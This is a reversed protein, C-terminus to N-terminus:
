LCHLQHFAAVAYVQSGETKGKVSLPLGHWNPDEIM